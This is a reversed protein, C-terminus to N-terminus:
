GVKRYLDPFVELVLKETLGKIKLKKKLMQTFILSEDPHMSELIQILLEKIRKAKLNEGKPHGKVFMSCKPMITFLSTESLGIPADDKKYKPLTNPVNWEVSPDFTGQLVFRLINNTKYKELLAKKEKRTKAKAIGKLLESIYVTM